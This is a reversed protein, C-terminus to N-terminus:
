GARSDLLLRRLGLFDLDKTWRKALVQGDRQTDDICRGAHAGADLTRLMGRRHAAGVVHPQVAARNDNVRGCRSLRANVASPGWKSCTRTQSCGRCHFHLQCTNTCRRRERQWRWGDLRAAALSQMRALTCVATREATKDVPKQLMSRRSSWRQSLAPEISHRVGGARSCPWPSFSRCGVQLCRSTWSHMQARSSLADLLAM